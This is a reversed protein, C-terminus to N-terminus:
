TRIIPMCAFLDFIKKFSDQYKLAQLEGFTLIGEILINELDAVAKQSLRYRM